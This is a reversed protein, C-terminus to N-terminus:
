GPQLHERTFPPIGARCRQVIAKTVIFWCDGMRSYKDTLSTKTSQEQAQLPERNTVGTQFLQELSLIGPSLGPSTTRGSHLLRQTKLMNSTRLGRGCYRMHLRFGKVTLAGIWQVVAREQAINLTMQPECARQRTTSCGHYRDRITTYSVGYKQAASTITLCEKTNLPKLAKRISSIRDM